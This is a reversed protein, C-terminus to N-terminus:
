VSSATASCNPTEWVKVSIPRIGTPLIGPLVGLLFSALNEATPETDMAFTKLGSERLHGGVPDWSAHVYGHDWHTDLWGGVITKIEGYDLVRGAHDLQPADVTVEFTYRHGHVNRCKSEHRTVRHGVDIGFLRTISIM